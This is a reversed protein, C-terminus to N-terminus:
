LHFRPPGPLVCFTRKLLKAGFHSRSAELFDYVILIIM